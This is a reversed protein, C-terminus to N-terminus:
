TGEERKGGARCGRGREPRVESRECGPGSCGKEWLLRIRVIVGAQLESPPRQHFKPILLM